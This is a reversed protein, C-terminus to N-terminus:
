STSTAKRSMLRNGFTDAISMEKGWCGRSRRAHVQPTKALLRKEITRLHTMCLVPPARALDRISLYLGNQFPVAIALRQTHKRGPQDLDM